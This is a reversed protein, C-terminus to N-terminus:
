VPAEKEAISGKTFYRELNRATEPAILRELVEALSGDCGTHRRLDALTGEVAVRGESLILIQDALEDVLEPVPTALLITAGQEKALRRLVHKLALIGSPDLGGSFPEDLLLVKAETILASSLAAKKKQGASYTRMPSDAVETLEFLTVLREIHDFLRDSPIEYVRGVGLLFERVTRETPLWTQDPLYIVRRRIALESEISSRRRLGDIKVCGKQPSLVGGIAALLTSKGSGNPGIIAATHGTAVHFTVDRLVPKIGYHQTLNEVSIM